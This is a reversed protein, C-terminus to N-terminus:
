LASPGGVLHSRETLLATKVNQTLRNGQDEYGYCVLHKTLLNYWCSGLEGM